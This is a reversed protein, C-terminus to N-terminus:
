FPPPTFDLTINCLILELAESKSYNAGVRRLMSRFHVMFSGNLFIGQGKLMARFLVKSSGNKEMEGSGRLMARFLSM